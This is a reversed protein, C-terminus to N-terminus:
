VVEAEELKKSAMSGLVWFPMSLVTLFTIVPIYNTHTIWTFTHQEWIVIDVALWLMLLTVVGVVVASIILTRQLKYRQNESM